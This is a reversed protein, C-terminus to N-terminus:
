TWHVAQQDERIESGKECYSEEKERWEMVRRVLEDGLRPVSLALSRGVQFDGCLLLLDVKKGKRREAQRVTAYIADLSGHSCGQIAVQRYGGLSSLPSPVLLHALRFPHSFCHSPSEVCLHFLSLITRLHLLPHTLKRDASCSLPYLWM